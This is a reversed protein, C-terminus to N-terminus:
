TGEESGSSDSSSDSSAALMSLLLEQVFLSKDARTQELTAKETESLPPLSYSHTCHPTTHHIHIHLSLNCCTCYPSHDLCFQFLVRRMESCWRLALLGAWGEWSPNYVSYIGISYLVALTYIRIVSNGPWFTAREPPLLPHRRRAVTEQPQAPQPAM